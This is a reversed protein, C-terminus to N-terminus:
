LVLDQLSNRLAAYARVLCSEVASPSWGTIQAIEKHSLADFRHLIVALRQRDPLAAVARRIQASRDVRDADAPEAPPPPPLTTLLRSERAHRRRQDWCVNVVLRYLWTTFAAQAQYDPATQYVKLFTEQAVDEAADWSGLFRYAVRMVRNQHNKMLEALAGRDGSAIRRMTEVDRAAKSQDRERREPM